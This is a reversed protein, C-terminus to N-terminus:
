TYTKYHKLSELTCFNKALIFYITFSHSACSNPIVEYFSWNCNPDNRLFGRTYQELLKTFLLININLLYMVTRQNAAM